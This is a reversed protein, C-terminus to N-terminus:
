TDESPPPPPVAAVPVTAAAVTTSTPARRARWIAVTASGLGYVTAAFWAIGGAFPILSVGALIAWGLLFSAFRSSPPKVLARGLAYASLIGALPYLLGLSLLVGVGLPIGALTVIALGAAVPLGFFMAFGWGIAPGAATRAVDAVAEAARPALALFLLGLVLASLAVALWFVIAGVIAARGFVFEFDVSRQRGEITADSAVTAAGSRTVLDGGIRAGAAVAADGNVVIVTGTVEGAVAADGNLVFLNGSVTGQVSVDGDLVVVDSVTQGAAIQVGGTLVFVDDGSGPETVQARAATASGVLLPVALLISPILTRLRRISPM